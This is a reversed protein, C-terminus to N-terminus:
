GEWEVKKLFIEMRDLLQELTIENKARFEVQEILNKMAKRIEPDRVKGRAYNLARLCEAIDEHKAAMMAHNCSMALIKQIDETLPLSVNYKKKMFEYINERFERPSPRDKPKRSLSRMILDDLASAESNYKSLPEPTFNKIREETEYRSGADFPNSGTLMVYLTLGLQYVDSKEDSTRKELMELSAYPLTYGKLESSSTAIKALGFDTIKAEGISNLLVNKPNIDGHIIHRNHAYELGSAIDFAIRCAKELDLSKTKFTEYLSKGEIYEIEIHPEPKLSPKILRVINRHKLKEWTSLERFFIDETKEDINRPVKVAVVTSDKKKAKYVDAFGGGGLYVLEAYKSMLLEAAPTVPSPKAPIRFDAVSKGATRRIKFNAATSTIKSKIRKKFVIAISVLMLALVIFIILSLPSLIGQTIQLTQQSKPASVISTSSSDSGVGLLKQTPIFHVSSGSAAAIYLGDSSISVDYVETEAGYNVLLKGERNFVYIKRLSGVVIYSGDFSLLVNKVHDGADYSWLLEGERNFLYAKRNLGGAVIYSGDSSISVSEVYNDTRYSWLLKGERNLFYVNNDSCGAAIYSSDSSISVSLISYPGIKYSWLLMGQKNFLYLDQAYSGVIIYLGDSSVSISEAGGIYSWLLEGESNLF